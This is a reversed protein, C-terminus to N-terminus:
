SLKTRKLIWGVGRRLTRGPVKLFQSRAIETSELARQERLYQATPPDQAVTSRASASSLVHQVPPSLLLCHTPRFVSLMEENCSEVHEIIWSADKKRPLDDSLKGMGEILRKHYTKVDRHWGGPIYQDFDYAAIGLKLALKRTFSSKGTGAGGTICLRVPQRGHLLEAVQQVIHDQSQPDLDLLEGALADLENKSANAEQENM